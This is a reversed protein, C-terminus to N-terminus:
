SSVNKGRYNPTLAHCNPCLLRLNSLNNNKHNGDIHDLELPIPNTLWLTNKCVSCIPQFVNEKLLLLRLRHSIIPFKNSLYDDISHRPGMKLGKRWGQRTFHALSIDLKKARDQFIRYNGGTAKLNLKQLAQRVSTSTHIANIFDDNTYQRTRM